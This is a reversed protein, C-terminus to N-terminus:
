RNGTLVVKRNVRQGDAELAVFYVGAALQRSSGDRGDWAVTYRGPQQAGNQLVRVVRGSIDFVELRATAVRGLQYSILTRGTFPNPRCAELVTRAVQVGSASQQGGGDEGRLDYKGYGVEYYDQQPTECWIVHVYPVTDGSVVETQCTIHPWRLDSAAQRLAIATDGAVNAMLYSDWSAVERWVVVPDPNLFIVPQVSSDNATQSLNITDHWVSYTTDLSRTRLYIEGKDGEKWAVAAISDNVAMTPTTSMPTKTNSINCTKYWKVWTLGSWLTDAVSGESQTYVVDGDESWSLHLFDCNGDPSAGIVPESSRTASPTVSTTLLHTGDFKAVRLVVGGSTSDSFVAYACRTTSSNSGTLSLPGIWEGTMGTHGWLTEPRSWTDGCQYRALVRPGPLAPTNVRVVSAIWRHGSGDQALATYDCRAEVAQREWSSGDASWAFMVTGSGDVYAAFLSDSGAKRILKTGNNMATANAAAASVNFSDVEFRAEGTDYVGSDVEFVVGQTWLLNVRIQDISPSISSSEAVAHPHYADTDSAVLTVTDGRVTARIQWKGGTKEQWATVGAGAYVPGDKTITDNESADGCVTWSGFMTTDSGVYNAKHKVVNLTDGSYDTVLGDRWVCHLYSGETQSM